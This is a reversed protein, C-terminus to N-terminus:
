EIRGMFYTGAPIDVKGCKEWATGNWFVADIRGGEPGVRYVADADFLHGQRTVCGSSLSIVFSIMLLHLLLKM